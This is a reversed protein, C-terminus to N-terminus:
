LFATVLAAFGFLIIISGAIRNIWCMTHNSVHKRFFAIGESLILWWFISGVFVGFVLWGGLIYNGEISTFGLAAFIALFSFITMPNTLTLFFTSFFDSLLTKHSVKEKEQGSPALFTRGGLYLLFFGGIFRFWFEGKVIANSLVTLGFAAVAGYFADAAAAGIGTFLGSLRGYQITRRICLIGIPGVPAAISFGILAGKIFLKLEVSM